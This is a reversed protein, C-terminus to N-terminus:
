KPHATARGPSGSIPWGAPQPCRFRLGLERRQGKKDSKKRVLPPTAFPFASFHCLLYPAPFTPPVMLALRPPLPTTPMAITVANATPM